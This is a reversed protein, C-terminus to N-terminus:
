LLKTLAFVCRADIEARVGPELTNENDASSVCVCAASYVWLGLKAEQHAAARLLETDQVLM